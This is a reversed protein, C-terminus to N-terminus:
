AAIPQQAHETHQAVPVHSTLPAPNPNPAMGVPVEGRPSISAAEPLTGASQGHQLQQQPNPQHQQLQQQQLHRLQLVGADRQQQLMGTSVSRVAPQQTSHSSLVPSRHLVQQQQVHQQQHPHLPGHMANQVIAPPEGVIHGSLNGRSTNAPAASSVTGHGPAPRQTPTSDRAPLGGQSNPASSLQDPLEQSARVVQARHLPRAHRPFQSAPERNRHHQQRQLQTPQTPYQVSALAGPSSKAHGAAASVPISAIATAPLDTRAVGAATPHQLQPQFQPQNHQPLQPARSGGAGAQRLTGPHEDSAVAAVEARLRSLAATATIGHSLAEQMTVAFVGHMQTMALMVSNQLQESAGLETFRDNVQAVARLAAKKVDATGAEIALAHAQMTVM